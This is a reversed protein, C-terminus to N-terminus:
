SNKYSLLRQLMKEAPNIIPITTNELLVNSIYPFHTCGLIIGDFSNEEAWSLIKELALRNYVEIESSRKEIEEVLPLASISWMRIEKNAEELITEIKACSQGNAAIILLKSYEKATEYYATFPTVIFTDTEKSVKDMDVAASLSNCYVFIKNVGSSKAKIVLEVVIDYLLDKSLLQLRSQEKANKSIPYGISKLGKGELFDVGMQTDVPTGAIVGIIESM